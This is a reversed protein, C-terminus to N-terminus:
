SSSLHRCENCNGRCRKKNRNLKLMLVLLIDLVISVCIVVRFIEFKVLLRVLLSVVYALAFQINFVLMATKPGLENKITGLASVCPSYLMIFVLFVLSSELSFHCVSSASLLSSSLSMIDVGNIMALGVLVLEKAVLGLFLSSVIGANDLGLPAFIFTLMKSLNFLISESFNDNNLFQLKFNFNRLFWVFVGFFLVISGTKVCFDKLVVLSDKAVKKLSPYQFRPMELIFNEEKKRTIKSEIWAVVVSLLISFLYFGFVYLYKFKEFFLSVIVLMVPLKASCNMFPLMLVTKRREDLNQLNRTTLVASTTCGFGMVLSFISKGTLGIKKMQGDLMFAVRSMLGSEEVLNMFFMLLVIQPVFKLVSFLSTLVGDIILMKIINSMNLCLILNQLVAFIKNLLWEFLYLISNGIEGFTLYFILFILSILFLPFLAKNLVFQDIKKDRQKSEKLNNYKIKKCLDTYKTPIGATKSTNQSKIKCNKAIQKKLTKTENKDKVDIVAVNEIKNNITINESSFNSFKNILVFVNYGSEFLQKTLILGRKLNNADCINIILADKNKELFETAIKEENSYGDLSYIGPIDFVEYTENEYSYKKSKIDVTVGHWNSVKENSRTLANFLTTKGANPNGVLIVKKM